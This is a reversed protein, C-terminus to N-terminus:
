NDDKNIDIRGMSIVNEDLTLAGDEVLKALWRGFHHIDFGQAKIDDRVLAKTIPDNAATRSRASQWIAIHHAYWRPTNIPQAEDDSPPRGVPIICLSNVDDGDSDTRIHVSTLDYAKPEPQDSDKMKSCTLVLAQQDEGDRSVRYEVDLAAPLSSSGRGGSEVNKGSHHVVLVTAGTLQQIAACGTIFAGMDKSSNEDNGGYCRALTDLIILKVDQGIKAKIDNYYDVVLEVQDYNAPFVPVGLRALSDLNAGQHRLEWARVRKTVGFGGEGAIYLVAGQKVKHQDWDLGSAIHCAWDLALFSKFSGSPGYMSVFSQEPLLGKIVFSQERDYGTSGYELEVKLRKVPLADVEALTTNIVTAPSNM